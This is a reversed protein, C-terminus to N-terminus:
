QDAASGTAETSTSPSITMRAPRHYLRLSLGQSSRSGEEGGAEANRRGHRKQHRNRHRHAYAFPHIRTFAASRRRQGGSPDIQPFGQAVPVLESPWSCGELSRTPPELGEQRARAACMGMTQRGRACQM